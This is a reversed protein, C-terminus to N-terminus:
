LTTQSKALIAGALRSARLRLSPPRHFRARLAIAEERTAGELIAAPIAARHLAITEGGIDAHGEFDAIRPWQARLWVLADSRDSCEVTEHLRDGHYIELKMSEKRPEPNM